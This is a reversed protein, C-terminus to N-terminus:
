NSLTKDERSYWYTDAFDDRARRNLLTGCARGCSRSTTGTALSISSRTSAIAKAARAAGAPQRAARASGASRSCSSSTRRSGSRRTTDASPTSTTAGASCSASADMNTAWVVPLFMVYTLAIGASWREMTAGTTGAIVDQRSMFAAIVNFTEPHVESDADIFALVAGRAVAAGANRVAGIRRVASSAVRYGRADAIASTDDTSANDSVIVEVGDVGGSFARRATEISTLLRPLLAAENYCPIIISIAPRDV